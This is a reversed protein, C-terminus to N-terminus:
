WLSSSSRRLVQAMAESLQRSNPPKALLVEVGLEQWPAQEEGIPHGSMLIVPTAIGRERLAKVLAVGGLRPMVVDSVILTFPEDQQRSQEALRVLAEEGNAAAVVQYNWLAMLEALSDRLTPDDEVLLVSM